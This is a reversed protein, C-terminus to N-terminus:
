NAEKLQIFLARKEGPKLAALGFVALLKPESDIYEDEDAFTYYNTPARNYTAEAGPEAASLQATTDGTNQYEWVRSAGTFPKLSVKFTLKKREHSSDGIDINPFLQEFMNTCLKLSAGEGEYPDGGTDISDLVSRDGKLLRELDDESELRIPYEFERTPKAAGTWLYVDQDDPDVTMWIWNRGAM